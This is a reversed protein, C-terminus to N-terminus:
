SAAPTAQASGVAAAQPVAPLGAQAKAPALARQRREALAPMAAALSALVGAGYPLSLAVLMGAWTIAEDNNYGGILIVATGLWLLTCLVFEEWAVVIGRIVASEDECKPTRLFPRNKTFLGLLVAKSVAHTLAIGAVAAGLRQRLSCGVKATYLWSL